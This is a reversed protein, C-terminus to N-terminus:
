GSHPVGEDEQHLVEVSASMALDGKTFLAVITAIPHVTQLYNFYDAIKAYSVTTTKYKLESKTKKHLISVQM